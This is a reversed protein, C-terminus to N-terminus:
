WGAPIAFGAVDPSPTRLVPEVFPVDTTYWPEECSHRRRCPAHGRLGLSATACQTQPLLATGAQVSDVAPRMKPQVRSAQPQMIFRRHTSQMRVSSAPHHRRKEIVHLEVGAPVEEIAGCGSQSSCGQGRAEIWLRERVGGGGRRDIRGSRHLREMVLRGGLRTIQSNM